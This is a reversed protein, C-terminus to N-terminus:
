RHARRRRSLYVAGFVASGIVCMVAVIGVWKLRCATLDSGTEGNCGSGDTWTMAFLLLMCVSFIIFGILLRRNGGTPAPIRRPAQVATGPTAAGDLPLPPGPYGDWVVYWTMGCHPCHVALNHNGPEKQYYFPVMDGNTPWQRTSHPGGCYQCRLAGAFQSIHM